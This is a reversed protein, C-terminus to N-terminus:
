GDRRERDYGSPARQTLPLLVRLLRDVDGNTQPWANGLVKRCLGVCRNPTWGLTEFLRGIYAQQKETITAGPRAQRAPASWTHTRRTARVGGQGGKAFPPQPTKAKLEDILLGARTHSLAKCTTVQYRERLLARYMDDDWGLRGVLAHIAKIQGQSIAERPITM